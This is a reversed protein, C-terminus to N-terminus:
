TQLIYEHSKFTNFEINFCTFENKINTCRTIEAPAWLTDDETELGIIVVTGPTINSVASVVDESQENISDFTFMLSILGQKRHLMNPHLREWGSSVPIFMTVNHMINKRRQQWLSDDNNSTSCSLKKLATCIRKEVSNGLLGMTLTALRHNRIVQHLEEKM